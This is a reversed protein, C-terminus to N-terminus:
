CSQTIASGSRSATLENRASIKKSYWADLQRLGVRSTGFLSTPMRWQARVMLAAEAPSTEIPDFTPVTQEARISVEEFLLSAHLRQKNLRAEPRRWVSAKTTKQRRMHSDVALAGRVSHGHRLFRATVGLAKALRELMEDDPMRQDNEYRSMTAQTVDALKCLDEQSLGRARRLTELVEGIGTM